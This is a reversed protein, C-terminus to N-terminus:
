KSFRPIYANNKIRFVRGQRTAQRQSSSIQQRWLYRTAYGILNCCKCYYVVLNLLVNSTYQQLLQLRIPQAVLQRNTSILYRRTVNKAFFCRKNETKTLFNQLFLSFLNTKVLVILNSARLKQSAITLEPKELVMLNQM